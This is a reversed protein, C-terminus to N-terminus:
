QTAGFRYDRRERNPLPHSSAHISATSAPVPPEPFHSQASVGKIEFDFRRSRRSAWNLIAKWLPIRENRILLEVRFLEYKDVRKQIEDQKTSCIIPTPSKWPSYQSGTSLNASLSFSIILQDVHVEMQTSTASIRSKAVARSKEGCKLYRKSYQQTFELRNPWVDKM